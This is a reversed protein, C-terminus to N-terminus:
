ASPRPAHNATPPGTKSFDAGLLIFRDFLKVTVGSAGPNTRSIKLGATSGARLDVAGFALFLRETGNKFVVFAPKSIFCEVGHSVDDRGPGVVRVSAPEQHREHDHQSEADCQHAPPRGGGGRRRLAREAFSRAIANLNLLGLRRRLRPLLGWRGWSWHRGLDHGFVDHNFFFDLEALSRNGDLLGPLVFPQLLTTRLRGRRCTPGIGVGSEKPRDLGVIWRGGALLADPGSDADGDLDRLRAPDLLGGDQFAPSQRTPFPGTWDGVEIMPQFLGGQDRGSPGTESGGLYISGRDGAPCGQRELEAGTIILTCFKAPKEGGGGRRVM